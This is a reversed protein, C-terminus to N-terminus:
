LNKAKSRASPELGDNHCIVPKALEAQYAPEMAAIPGNIVKLQEEKTLRFGETITAVIGFKNKPAKAVVVGHLCRSTRKGTRTTKPKSM